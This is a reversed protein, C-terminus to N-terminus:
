QDMISRSFCVFFLCSFLSNDPLSLVHHRAEIDARTLVTFVNEALFHFYQMFLLCQFNSSLNCRHINSKM